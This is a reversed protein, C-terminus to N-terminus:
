PFHDSISKESARMNCVNRKRRRLPDNDHGVKSYIPKSGDPVDWGIFVQIAELTKLLLSCHLLNVDYGWKSRILFCELLGKM